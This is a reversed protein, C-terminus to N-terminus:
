VAGVGGDGELICAAIQALGAAIGAGIRRRGQRRGGAAGRLNLLNEAIEQDPAKGAEHPSPILHRIIGRVLDAGVREGGGPQRVLM